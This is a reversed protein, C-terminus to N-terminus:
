PRSNPPVLRLPLEVDDFDNCLISRIPGDSASDALGDRLAQVSQQRASTRSKQIRGSNRDALKPLLVFAKGVPVQRGIRQEFRRLFKDIKGHEIRCRGHNQAHRTPVDVDLPRDQVTQGVPTHQATPDYLPRVVVADIFQHAIDGGSLVIRFIYTLAFQDVFQHKRIRQRFERSTPQYSQNSSRFQSQVLSGSGIPHATKAHEEVM